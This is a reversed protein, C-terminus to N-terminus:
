RIYFFNGSKEDYRFKNKYEPFAKVIENKLLVNQQNLYSLIDLDGEPIPGIEKLPKVTGCDEADWHIERYIFNSKIKWRSIIFESTASDFIGLCANRANIIYLYNHKCDSIKIM